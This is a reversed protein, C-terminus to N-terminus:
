LKTGSPVALFAHNRNPYITTASGVVYGKSNQGIIRIEKSNQFWYPSQPKMLKRIDAGTLYYFMGDLKKRLESPLCSVTQPSSNRIILSEQYFDGSLNHLTMLDAQFKKSPNIFYYDARGAVNSIEVCMNGHDDFDHVYVNKDEGYEKFLEVFKDNSWLFSKRINSNKNMIHGLVIIEENNNMNNASVHTFVPFQERFINSLEKTNAHDCLYIYNNTFTSSHILLQGNDNLKIIYNNGNFAGINYFGTEPDLIFVSNIHSTSGDARKIENKLYEGAIQGKNNLRLNECEPLDLIQLGSDKDWLFMDWKGHNKIRGLVQGKDNIALAHSEDSNLVGIDIIEYSTISETACLSSALLLFLFACYKKLM